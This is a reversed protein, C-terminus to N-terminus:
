PRPLDPLVFQERARASDLLAKSYYRRLLSGGHLLLDENESAFTQWNDATRANRRSAIEILFFWSVTEHYKSSQGLRMTLRRLAVTFRQIAEALPYRSLYCWAVYVHARHNFTGPNYDGSEFEELTPGAAPFTAIGAEGRGSL